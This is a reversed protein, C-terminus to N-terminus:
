RGGRLTGGLLGDLTDTLGDTTGQVAGTVPALAGGTLGDVAGVAGAVVPDVLQSVPGRRDGDPGPGQPGPGGPAPGDPGPEPNGGPTTPGSGPDSPGPDSPGQPSGGTTTGGGQPAPAVGDGTSVGGLPAGVASTGGGAAPAAARVLVQAEAVQQALPASPPQAVPLGPLDTDTVYLTTVTMLVFAAAGVGLAGYGIRLDRQPKSMPASFGM